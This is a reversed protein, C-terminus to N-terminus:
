ARRNLKELEERVVDTDDWPTKAGQAGVIFPDTGKGTILVNVRKSGAAVAERALALARGIARRRDLILEVKHRNRIGALMERLIKDPDEDYPDENTLIVYECNEEAVEAMRPRKWADRGGGTSGLVCVNRSGEFIHYFQELSNATHAYDVVVTFPERQVFEVRGRVGRFGEVVRKITKVSVGQREAFTAAALMNYINFKGPLHLNVKTSRFTLEYGDGTKTFLEADALSFPLKVPVSRALYWGGEPDDSNAVLVRDKKTSEELAVALSRKADRYAEFSGHAEIHEPSLNTFILGDLLVHRHRFQKVGESTMEFIAWDCRADVARRLFRQVFLRGPMTMKYTNQESVDGVKFRITSSLATKFGHSELMASLLEAVTSKGKTGTVAVIKIHRSPHRYAIAGAAALLAHYPPQLATFLRKPILRRLVNLARTVM